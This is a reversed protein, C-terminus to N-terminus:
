AGELEAALSEIREALKEVAAATEQGNGAPAASQQAAALQEASEQLEDAMILGAMVLLRAEDIPGVSAAIERIRVDLYDGMERVRNEEGDDCAIIYHRGNVKLNVQGM